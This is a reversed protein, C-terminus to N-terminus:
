CRGYLECRCKSRHECFEASKGFIVPWLYEMLLGASDDDMKTSQLWRWLKLYDAVGRSKVQTRSVAFNGGLVAALRKPVQEHGALVNANGGFAAAGAKQSADILGFLERWAQPIHVDLTRFTHPPKATSIGKARCESADWCLLNAFGEKQVFETRLYTLNRVIQVTQSKDDWSNNFNGDLFVMTEPLSYYNEIIYTLYATAIRGKNTLHDVRLKVFEKPIPQSSTNWGPLLPALIGMLSYATSPHAVVLVRPPVAFAPNGEKWPYEKPKPPTMQLGEMKIYPYGENILPVHPKFPAYSSLPGLYTITIFLVVAFVCLGLLSHIPRHLWRHIYTHLLM